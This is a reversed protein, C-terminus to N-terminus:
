IVSGWHKGERSRCRTTSESPPPGKDRIRSVLPASGWINTAARRSCMPSPYGWTRPSSDHLACLAIQTRVSPGGNSPSPPGLPSILRPELRWRGSLPARRPLRRLRECRCRGRRVGCVDSMRPPGQRDGPTVDNLGLVRQHGLVAVADHRSSPSSRAAAASFASSRRSAFLTAEILPSLPWIRASTFAANPLTSAFGNCCLQFRIVLGHTLVQTPKGVLPADGFCRVALIPTEVRPALHAVFRESGPLGLCM